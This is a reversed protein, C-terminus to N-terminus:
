WYRDPDIAINILARMDNAYMVGTTYNAAYAAANAAYATYAADYAARTAADAARTAADAADTANAANTTAADATKISRIPALKALEPFHRAAISRVAYDALLFAIKQKTNM